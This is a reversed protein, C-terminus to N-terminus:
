APAKCIFESLISYMPGVFETLGNEVWKLSMSSKLIMVSNGFDHKHNTLSTLLVKASM